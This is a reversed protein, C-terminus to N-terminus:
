KGFTSVGLTLQSHLESERAAPDRKNKPVLYSLTLGAEGADLTQVAYGAATKVLNLQSHNTIEKHDAVSGLIFASKGQGQVVLYNFTRASELKMSITYDGPTLIATGWRAEVPLTFKGMYNGQAKGQSAALCLSLAMFGVNM